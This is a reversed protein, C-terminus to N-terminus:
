RGREDREELGICCRKQNKCVSSAKYIGTRGGSLLIIVGRELFLLVWGLKVKPGGVWEWENRGMGGAGWLGAM